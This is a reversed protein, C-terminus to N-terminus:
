SRRKKAAPTKATAKKATATKAATKKAVAKKAAPKKKVVTGKETDGSSLSADLRDSVRKPAVAYYSELLWQRLLDLPVEADSAFRATIWGSKGLGYGTPSAFDLQRAPGASYPLKVSLSLATDGLSLFLFVKGSVKLVREGWPFDETTEPYSLGQERLADAVWALTRRTVM